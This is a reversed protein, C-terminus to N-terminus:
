GPGEAEDGGVRRCWSVSPTWSFKAVPCVTGFRTETGSPESPFTINDLWDEFEVWSM